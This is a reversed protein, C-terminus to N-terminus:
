LIFHRKKFSISPDRYWLRYFNWGTLPKVKSISKREKKRKLNETLNKRWNLQKLGVTNLLLLVTWEFTLGIKVLWIKKLINRLLNKSKIKAERWLIAIWNALHGTSHCKIIVRGKFIMENSAGLQLWCYCCKLKIPKESECVRVNENFSIYKKRQFM